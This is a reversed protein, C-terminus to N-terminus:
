ALSHCVHERSIDYGVVCTTLGALMGQDPKEKQLSLQMAAARSINLAMKRAVGMCAARSHPRPARHILDIHM